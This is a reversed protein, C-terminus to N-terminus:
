LANVFNLVESESVNLMLKYDNVNLPTCHRKILYYICYHGCAPSDLSQIQTKSYDWLGQSSNGTLYNLWARYLPQKGFSDFYHAEGGRDFYFAVWHEGPNHQCETNAVFCFPYSIDRNSSIDGVIPLMSASHVGKFVRHGLEKMLLEEITFTDM